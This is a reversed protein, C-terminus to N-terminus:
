DLANIILDYTPRRGELKVKSKKGRRLIEARHYSVNAFNHWVEHYHTLLVRAIGIEQFGGLIKPPFLCFKYGSVRAEFYKRICM